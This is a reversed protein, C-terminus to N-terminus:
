SGLIKLSLITAGLVVLFAGAQMWSCFVSTDIGIVHGLITVPPIVPCSVNGSAIGATNLQSGGVTEEGGKGAAELSASAPTTPKADKIATLSESACRDKQTEALIACQVQDGTCVYNTGCAGGSVGGPTGPGSAGSAGGPSGAPVGSNTGSADTGNVTIFNQVTTTTTTTTGDASINTTTITTPTRTATLTEGPTPTPASPTATGPARVQAIPGDTKTGTEGNSWCIQRGTSATYCNQGAQTRCYTQGSGAATCVQDTPPPPKAVIPPPSDPTAPCTAGTFGFHATTMGAGITGGVTVIGQNGIPGFACGGRCQTAASSYTSKGDEPNYFPSASDTQGAAAAACDSSPGAAAAYYLRWTAYSDGYPSSTSVSGRYESIGLFGVYGAVAPTTQQTCAGYIPGTRGSVNAISNLVIQCDSAAAAQTPYFYTQAQVSSVAFSLLLILGRLYAM